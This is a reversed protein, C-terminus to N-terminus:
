FRGSCVGIRPAPLRMLSGFFGGGLLEERVTATTATATNITTAMAPITSAPRFAGGAGSTPAADAGATDAPGAAEPEVGVLV